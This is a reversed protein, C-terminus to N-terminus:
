ACIGARFAIAVAETRNSADLKECLNVVYRRATFWSINMAKGIEKNTLGKSILDLCERERATLHMNVSQGM